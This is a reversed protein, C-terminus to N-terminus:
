WAREITQTHTYSDGPHLFNESNNICSHRFGYSPINKYSVWQDSMITTGLNVHQVLKGMLRDESRDQVICFFTKRTERCIGGFVWLGQGEEVALRGTHNKRKFIKTEDVKVIQGEGGIKEDSM